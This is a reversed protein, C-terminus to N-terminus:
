VWCARWNNAQSYLLTKKQEIRYEVAELAQMVVGGGSLTPPHDMM